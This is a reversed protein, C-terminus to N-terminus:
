KGGSTLSGLTLLGLGTATQWHSPAHPLPQAPEPCGLVDSAHPISCGGRTLLPRFASPCGSGEKLKCEGTWGSHGSPAPAPPPRAVGPRCQAVQGWNKHGAGAAGTLGEPTGSQACVPSMWHGHPGAPIASRSPPISIFVKIPQSLLFISLVSSLTPWSFALVIFVVWDSYCLLFLSLFFFFFCGKQWPKQFRHTLVQPMLVSASANMDWFGPRLFLVPSFSYVYTISSFKGVKGFNPLQFSNGFLIFGFFDM